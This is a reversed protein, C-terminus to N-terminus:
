KKALVKKLKSFRPLGDEIPACSEGQILPLAYKIFDETLGNGEKNIWERPIKKETNAVDTLNILKINCKYETGEAREFAVMYDTKGEVAYKVAMQGALYAENVDTQSAVHAACRQLLSFEIGRVKSAIKEKAINALISAAGGLQAHGFSDTSLNAGMEAIYRGQEDKCGESVAIIVKGQEKYIKNTEDLFKEMSFPLEPLYILDPGCGKYSALAAAATLWGANRGMIELVTIMGTDYVRADKYVEMTSTAIYKAASGYGPCHDTGWLDNDITKPVGMVRCEYGVKQMYKSVKNCTDMSDNGGNYFFYRINYKEFVELLRKYDTEDEDASKLKYRVSGLESSPTTKLLDLEYTDEKSMDYFNEDLVGKIGHAAGYVATICEQKLAEQIVGAASSNIVSTPGGSQGFMCAGTLNGM